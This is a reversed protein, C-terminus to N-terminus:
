RGGISAEFRAKAEDPPLAVLEEALKRGIDFHQYDLPSDWNGGWNVFGNRAFIDVIDEAMGHRDPKGPRHPARNLFDAGQPPSVTCLAGTCRIYPNEVPNVDIAVALAHLSLKESDAVLRVNFGSSNDDAMAAEDDGDYAEMPKAKAIPFGRLRLEAFIRAVRESVADLVVIAGDDHLRGDFGLYSFRVLRLRECGVPGPNLVHHTRMTECAAQDLTAIDDACAPGTALALALLWGIRM